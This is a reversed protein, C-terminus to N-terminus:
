NITIVFDDRRAKGEGTASTKPHGIICVAVGNASEPLGWLKKLEIGQPTDFMEYNRNNWCTGIGVSAAANMLKKIVLAGDQRWNNPSVASDTFVIIAQHAGYFPDNTANMVNANMTSLTKMMEANNGVVVQSPQKGMASPAYSGAELIAQITADDVPEDTFARCSRRTKLIEVVENNIM